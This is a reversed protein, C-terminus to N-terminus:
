EYHTQNYRSWEFGTHVRNFYRPKRPRYRDSWDYNAPAALDLGDALDGFEEESEDSGLENKELQAQARFYREAEQEEASSRSVSPINAPVDPEHKSVPQKPVFAASTINHRSAFQLMLTVM